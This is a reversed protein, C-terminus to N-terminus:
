PYKEMEVKYTIEFQQTDIMSHVQAIRVYITGLKGALIVCVISLMECM